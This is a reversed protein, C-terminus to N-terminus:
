SELTKSCPKSDGINDDCYIKLVRLNCMKSFAARSVKVDRTMESMNFSIIEVVITGTNRELVHFIEKADWIRSCHGPKTHGDCIIKQGMQELLDHMRLENGESYRDYDILSKEILDSIGVKVWSNGDDLLSEVHDRIFPGNFLCAINLFINQTGEDLGEYNTALVNLINKDPFKKFKNLANEWKEKSKSNLFSGLVKLALPNEDAYMVVKNLLMEDYSKNPNISKASLIRISSFMEMKVSQYCELAEEKTMVFKIQIGKKEEAPGRRRGGSLKKVEKKVLAESVELFKDKMLKKPSPKKSPEYRYMINTANLKKLELIEDLSIKNFFSLISNLM